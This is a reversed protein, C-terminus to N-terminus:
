LSRISIVINIVALILIVLWSILTGWFRGAHTGGKGATLGYAHFIRSLFFAIGFVHLWLASLGGLEALLLLLLAIPTYEVANAHVRVRIENHRDEGTGIGVRKTRRFQVVRGALYIILIACLSAYLATINVM